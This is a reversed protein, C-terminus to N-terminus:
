FSSSFNTSLSLNATINADVPFCCWMTQRSSWLSPDLDACNARESHACRSWQENKVEVAHMCLILAIRIKWAATFWWRILCVFSLEKHFQTIWHDWSQSENLEEIWYDVRCVQEIMANLTSSSDTAYLMSDLPGCNKTTRFHIWISWGLLLLLLLKTMTDDVCFVLKSQCDFITRASQCFCM